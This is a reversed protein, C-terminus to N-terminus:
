DRELFDKLYKIGKNVEQPIKHTFFPFSKVWFTYFCTILSILLFWFHSFSHFKKSFSIRQRWLPFCLCKLPLLRVRFLNVFHYRPFISTWFCFLPFPTPGSFSCPSGFKLNKKMISSVRWPTTTTSLGDLFKKANIMDIPITTLLSFTQFQRRTRSKIEPENPLSKGFPILDETRIAIKALTNSSDAGVKIVSLPIWNKLSM